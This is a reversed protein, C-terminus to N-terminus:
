GIATEVVQDSRLRPTHAPGAHDPDAFGVRLVLYPHGLGSLVQRLAQRTSEVEIAESLPLVSVGLGVATLWAASLAEGARLWSSQEDDDGFLLLYSAAADHGPGVPLTGPRGFDREPVTTRPPEGPVVHAPLGAGAPAGRGTWYALEDRVRPDDSEVTAARSAAAALGLVQDRTLVQLRAAGAVATTIAALTSVPVPEDTVPRRDTHRVEAAQFLRRARSTVPIPGDPILRALLDPQEPDPLRTVKSAWGQAALAVTAHHLATGCSLLLLRGDPDTVSLQRTRDAFLELRESEVRWHWPQTNHVSPAYGAAVAARALTAALPREPVEIQEVM